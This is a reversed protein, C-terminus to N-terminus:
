SLMSLSSPPMDKKYESPIVGYISKFCRTFYKQDSFGVMYAIEKIMYDGSLILVAARKIRIERVFEVPALGTLSKIKNYFVRRSFNTKSVLEDITLESNDLNEDILSIINKIFEEDQATMYSKASNMEEDSPESVAVTGNALYHSFRQRQRIINDIKAKLLKANFPKTIYDDAGSSIGELEDYINSKATLLIFPIHSTDDNNRIKQLFTMGDMEPMMIDSLIFDPSHTIASDYGEKGNAAEYVNYHPSLISKIFTRLDEDDEVVLISRQNDENTNEAHEPIVPNSIPNKDKSITDETDIVEINEDNTFHALGMQFFVTFTTGKDVTSDITIRAHHKEAIEKVISLGIGTSPNNKDTNFSAFRTFLKEQVEKNMGKGEDKVQLAYSSDKKFLNIEIKKGSPTYKIANSLLNYLLKEISDTDIWVKDEVEIQNNITLQIGKNNTAPIFNKHLDAIFEGFAIQRLQLNQKQIKKFDLIQNVMNLMRNANKLVLQLQPKVNTPIDDKDIIEEIPSVILTLPTRIEHSINTYFRTKMETQEQELRVKDKMRYFIFLSRFVVFLVSIFTILYLLYAWQTQWFSPKITISLSRENDNWQGFSNTSKVKFIYNGPPLSTYNVMRQNQNYIWEKELGELKYAYAINHPSAYDLAAYEISFTNNDHTLTIQEIDDAKKGLQFNNDSTQFKIFAIYPTYNDKEVEEPIFSLVGNTLGLMIEGNETLLPYSDSFFSKKIVSSIESFSEVSKDKPNFRALSGEGVIWLKNEPDEVISLVVDFPLINTPDYTEFQELIGESIKKIHSLGGGQSAIYINKDKTIYVQYINNSKLGNKEKHNRGYINYKASEYSNNNDMQCVILGLTTGIFLTNGLSNISRIQYGTEIPYGKLLNNHNIFRKKRPDFLNLGGGFTGIWINDNADQHISFVANYNLSYPDSSDHKYHTIHYREQKSDIAELVFLGDNKSGIWINGKKDTMFTYAMIKLPPITKSISGNACLYGKFKRNADFILVVGEKSGIWLNGHKDKFLARIESSLLAPEEKFNNIKFTENTFTIKEIGDSRTAIWLNSQKDIFLYHLLHSFMWNSTRNDNYFPLLTDNEKDYFSFGGGKPHIWIHGYKDEAIFFHPPDLFDLEQSVSSTYHKLQGNIMNFRSVGPYDLELWINNNRDIYCSKMRDTPLNKLIAKNYKSVATRNNNSILFGDESTLIVLLNDYVRKISIINSNTTTNFTEFKKTTKNYCLIQGHNTGFWIENETEHACFFPRKDESTSYFSEYAATSNDSQKLMTLGQDTLIWSDLNKDEHVLKVHNSPLIGNEASYVTCANTTDPICITGMNESTLWVKGSPVVLIDTTLFPKNGIHFSAVYKEKRPDFRYTESNYTHIWLYGLSDTQIRNIRNSRMFLEDEGSPRHTTFNYGDFKCLGNWTGLWIFGKKDQVISMVTRQPLGDSIGYHTINCKPQATALEISLALLLLFINIRHNM